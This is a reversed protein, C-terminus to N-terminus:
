AEKLVKEVPEAILFGKLGGANRIFARTSHCLVQMLVLIENRYEVYALITATPNRSQLKPHLPLVKRLENKILM